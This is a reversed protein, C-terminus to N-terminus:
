KGEGRQRRAAALAAAAGLGLAGPGPVYTATYVGGKLTFAGLPTESFAFAVTDGKIAEPGIFIGAGEGVVLGNLVDGRGVVRSYQGNRWVWLETGFGSAGATFAVSTGSIAVDYIVSFQRGEPGPNVTDAINLLQGNIRAYIGSRNQDDTAGFAVNGQSASVLGLSRFNGAGNPIPTNTDAIQSFTGAALDALFVGRRTGASAGFAVSSGTVRPLDFDSFSGGGPAATQTNAITSIVGANSQYLGEPVQAAFAVRDGDRSPSSVGSFLPGAPSPTHSDVVTTLLGGAGAYIGGVGNSAGRFTPTATGHSTATLFSTFPQMTTPSITSLNAITALEGTSNSFVGQGAGQNYLAWFTARGDSGLSPRDFPRAGFGIFSGGGPVPTNSDAVRNLPWGQAWCSTAITLSAAWASRLHM